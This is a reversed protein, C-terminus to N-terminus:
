VFLLCRYEGDLYGMEAVDVMLEGRPFNVTFSNYNSYANKTELHFKTRLNICRMWLLMDIQKDLM